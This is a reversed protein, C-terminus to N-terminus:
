EMRLRPRKAKVLLWDGDQKEFDLVFTGAGEGSLLSGRDSAVQADAFAVVTAHAKTGEVRLDISRVRVHMRDIRRFLQILFPRMGDRSLGNLPDKYTAAVHKLMGGPRKAEAAEAIGYIVAKVRDEDTMWLRGLVLYGGVGLAALGAAALVIRGYRM